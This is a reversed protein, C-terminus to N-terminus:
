RGSPYVQLLPSIDNSNLKCTSVAVFVFEVIVNPIEFDAVVEEMVVVFKCDSEEAAVVATVNKTGVAVVVTEAVVFDIDAGYGVAVVFHPRV